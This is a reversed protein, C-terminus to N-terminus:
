FSPKLIYELVDDLNQFLRFGNSVYARNWPFLLGAGLAGNDIAKELTLPSDDVVVDANAFLVTKNLSLHLEDYHLGHRNLWQETPQKTTPVRHSALIVHFGHEKLSSLFRPSEPYPQYQDNDQHHHIANIATIFDEVSCYGEWIDYTTWHDPTPFDPNIKKLEQYFADSFQWLTNDIDIIATKSVTTKHEAKHAVDDHGGNM